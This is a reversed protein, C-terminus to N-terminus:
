QTIRTNKLSLSVCLGILGMLVLYLGLGLPYIQHLIPAFYITLGGFVAYAVNYSASLGSFRISPEFAQLMAIPTFTVVGVFVGSICYWRWVENLSGKALTETGLEFAYVKSLFIFSTGMLGLSFFVMVKANGLIDGLFGAGIVGLSIFIIASMQMLMATPKDISLSEQMFNPMLLVMIVICGTLIWTALISVAVDKKANKLVQKIPLSHLSDSEYMEKFIPTEELYRRLFVSIVGFIGGLVFPIRWAYAIIEEQSFRVYIGLTVLSGLLIGLVVAATLIGIGFGTHQPPTHECVFVWAGPLEGGIAIGQLIRILVLIIPATYGITEFTPMLGLTFTPIVMLLISLMFMKKRGSKDGFHAMIIGGIPRAFYGAAFAGYTNLSAWFSDLSPPFFLVSIVSAFFVYIIFDYFELMGGLSSLTLTKIDQQNLFRPM